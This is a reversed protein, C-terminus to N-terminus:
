KARAGPTGTMGGIASALGTGGPAGASPAPGADDGTADPSADPSAAGATDLGTAAQGGGGAFRKHAGHQKHACHKKAGYHRGGSVTGLQDLTLADFQSSLTTTNM